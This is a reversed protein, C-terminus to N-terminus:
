ADDDDEGEQYDYEVTDIVRELVDTIHKASWGYEDHLLACAYGIGEEIDRARRAPEDAVNVKIISEFIVRVSTATRQDNSVAAKRASSTTSISATRVSV